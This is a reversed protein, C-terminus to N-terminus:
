DLCSPYGEAVIIVLVTLESGLATRFYGPKRKRFAAIVLVAACILGIATLASIPVAAGTIMIRAERSWYGWSVISDSSGFNSAEAGYGFHLLYHAVYRVNRGYWTLATLAAAVSAIVLNVRAGPRRHVAVQLVAAVFLGPVFAITMTRTLTLLGVLVGVGISWGRRSLGDSRLLAWVALMMVATAPVTFEFFRSYALMEPICGSLIAAVASWPPSVFRRAVGYTALVAVVSALPLIAFGVSTTRSVLLELIGASLPVFPAEYHQNVFETVLGLPGHHQFASADASAIGLYGSEDIDLPGGSRYRSLWVLDLVAILVAVALVLILWGSREVTM